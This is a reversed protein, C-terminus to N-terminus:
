GLQICTGESIVTREGNVVSVASQDDLAYADNDIHQFWKQAADLTNTPMDPHNLHPFLSFNVLGLTQDAPASPDEVSAELGKSGSTVFERGIRPTLVMSGASVGVWVLDPFNLLEEWLGSAHLWHRLYVADGGDVLLVDTADLWPLWRSKNMTPLALLELLGVSSWGLGTMHTAEQGSVFNWMTKPTCWPHGYQATPICLASSESITKGLLNELGTRISGNTVGGSTLLLKM